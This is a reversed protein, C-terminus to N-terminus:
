KTAFVRFYLLFGDFKPLWLNTVSDSTKVRSNYVYRLIYEYGRQYSGLEVSATCLPGMQEGRVKSLRSM